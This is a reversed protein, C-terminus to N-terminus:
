MAAICPGSFPSLIGTQTGLYPELPGFFAIKPQKKKLCQLCPLFILQPVHLYKVSIESTDERYRVMPPRFLPEFHGFITNKQLIKSM